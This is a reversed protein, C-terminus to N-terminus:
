FGTHPAPLNLVVYTHGEEGAKKSHDRRTEARYGRMDLVQQFVDKPCYVDPNKVRRAICFTARAVDLVHEVTHGYIPGPNTQLWRGIDRSIASM